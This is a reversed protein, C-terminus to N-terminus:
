ITPSSRWLVVLFQLANSIIVTIICTVLGDVPIKPSSRDPSPALTLSAWDEDDYEDNCAWTAPCTPCAAPMWDLTEDWQPVPGPADRGQPTSSTTPSPACQKDTIQNKFLIILCEFASECLDKVICHMIINLCVIVWWILRNSFCGELKLNGIFVHM